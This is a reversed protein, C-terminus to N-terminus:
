SSYEKGYLNSDYCGGIIKQNQKFVASIINTDLLYNLYNVKGM